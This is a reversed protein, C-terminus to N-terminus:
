ANQVHPVTWFIRPGPASGHLPSRSFCYAELATVKKGREFEVVQQHSSLEALWSFEGTRKDFVKLRDDVRHLSLDLIHNAWVSAVRPAASIPKVFGM